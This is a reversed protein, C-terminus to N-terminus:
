MSFSVAFTSFFANSPVLLLPHRPALFIVFLLVEVAFLLRFLLHSVFWCANFDSLSTLERIIVQSGYLISGLLHLLRALRSMARSNDNTVNRCLSLGVSVSFGFVTNKVAAM